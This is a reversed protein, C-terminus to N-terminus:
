KGYYERKLQMLFHKFSNIGAELTELKDLALNYDEENELKGWLRVSKNCDSITLKYLPIPEIETKAHYSSCSTESEPLLFEKKNYKRM